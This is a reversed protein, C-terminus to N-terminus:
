GTRYPHLRYCPSLLFCLACHSTRLDNCILSKPASSTKAVWLYQYNDLRVGHDSPMPRSEAAEPAPFRAITSSRRRCVIVPNAEDTAHPLGIGSPAASADLSFQGFEADRDGVGGDALITRSGPTAVLSPLSKELVMDLFQDGHIEQSGHGGRKPHEFQWVLAFDNFQRQNASEVVAINTLRCGSGSHEKGPEPRLTTGPRGRM